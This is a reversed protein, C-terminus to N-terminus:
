RLPARWGADLTRRAHEQLALAEEAVAVAASLVRGDDDLAQLDMGREATYAALLQTPEPTPHGLQRCARVYETMVEVSPLGAELMGGPTDNMPEGSGDRPM